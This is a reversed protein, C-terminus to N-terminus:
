FIDFLTHTWSAPPCCATSTEPGIFEGQKVCAKFSCLKWKGDMMRAVTAPHFDAYVYGMEHVHELCKALQQITEVLVSLGLHEKVLAVVLTTDPAATVIFGGEEFRDSFIDFEPGQTQLDQLWRDGCKEDQSTCIIEVAFKPDLQEGYLMFMESSHPRLELEREFDTGKEIFEIIVDGTLDTEDLQETTGSERRYYFSHSPARFSTKSESVRDLDSDSDSDSSSDSDFGEEEVAQIDEDEELISFEIVSGRSPPEAIGVTKKPQKPPKEEQKKMTRSLNLLGTSGLSRLASWANRGKQKIRKKSFIHEEILGQVGVAPVEKLAAM